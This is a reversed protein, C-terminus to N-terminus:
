RLGEGVPLAPVFPRSRFPPALDPLRRFGALRSRVRTQSRKSYNKGLPQIREPLRSVIPWRTVFPPLCLLRGDGMKPTQGGSITETRLCRAVRGFPQVQGAICLHARPAIISHPFPDRSCFPHALNRETWRDMLPSSPVEGMIEFVPGKRPKCAARYGMGHPISFVGRSEGPEETCCLGSREKEIQGRGHSRGMTVPSSGQFSCENQMSLSARRESGKAQTAM